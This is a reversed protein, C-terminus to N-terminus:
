SSGPGADRRALGATSRPPGSITQHTTALAFRLRARSGRFTRVENLGKLDHPKVFNEASFPESTGASTVMECPCGPNRQLCFASNTSSDGGERPRPNFSMRCWSAPQSVVTAGKAPAHISVSDAITLSSRTRTAGRAPAHISVPMTVAGHDRVTVTAGERPRPNFSRRTGSITGSAGTAGKAPAHISVATSSRCRDGDSADGGRPPTSQFRGIRPLDCSRHRTAGKAPAHISVDCRRM